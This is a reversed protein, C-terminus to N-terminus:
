GIQVAGEMTQALSPDILFQEVHNGAELREGTTGPSALLVRHAAGDARRCHPSAPQAAMVVTVPTTVTAPEYANTRPSIPRERVAGVARSPLGIAADGEPATIHPM